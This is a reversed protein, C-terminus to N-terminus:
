NVVVSTPANPKVKVDAKNSPLSENSPDNKDVATVYYCYKGHPLTDIYTMATIGTQIAVMPPNNSCVDAGRYATYTVTNPPNLTDQWNLTCTGAFASAALLLVAIITKM